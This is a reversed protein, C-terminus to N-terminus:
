GHAARLFAFLDRMTAADLPVAPMRRRGDRVVAEFERARHLIPREILAPGVPGGVGNAGHCSQCAMQYVAAGHTADGGAPPEDFAIGAAVEDTRMVAPAVPAADPGFDETLLAVAGGVEEAPVPAGWGIMKKLEKEWAGRGLRQSQVLDLSHCIQCNQEITQQAHARAEASLQPRTTAPPAPPAPTSRSCGAAALAVAAYALARV